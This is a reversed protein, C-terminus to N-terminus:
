YGFYGRFIVQMDFYVWADLQTATNLNEIRFNYQFNPQHNGQNIQHWFFNNTNPPLGDSSTSGWSVIDGNSGYVHPQSNECGNNQCDPTGDILASGICFNGWCVNPWALAFTWAYNAWLEVTGNPLANPLSIVPTAVQDAVFMQGGSYPQVQASLHYKFPSQGGFANNSFTKSIGSQIHEFKHQSSHWQAIFPATTAVGDQEGCLSCYHSGYGTMGDIYLNNNVACGNNVNFYDSMMVGWQWSLSFFAFEISCSDTQVVSTQQPNNPNYWLPTITGYGNGASSHPWTPIININWPQCGLNNGIGYNYFTWHNDPTCTNGNWKAYPIRGQCSSTATPQNYSAGGVQIRPPSSCYNQPVMITGYIVPATPNLGITLRKVQFHARALTNFIDTNPSLWLGSYKMDNSWRTGNRYDALNSVLFETATIFMKSGNLISPVVENQWWVHSENTDLKNAKLVNMWVTAAQMQYNFLVMYYYELFLYTNLISNSTNIGKSAFQGILLRAFTILSSSDGPISPDGILNSLGIFAQEPDTSNAYNTYYNTAAPSVHNAMYLSDYGPVKRKYNVAAQAYWRLGMQDGNGMATIVKAIYQNATTNNIQNIIEETNYYMLKSLASVDVLLISDQVHFSNLNANIEEIANQFELDMDADMSKSILDFYAFVFPFPDVGGMTNALLHGNLPANKNTEYDSM